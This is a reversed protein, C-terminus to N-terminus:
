WTYYCVIIQTSKFSVFGDSSSLDFYVSRCHDPILLDLGVDWWLFWFLFFCMCLFVNMFSMCLLSVSCCKGMCTTM